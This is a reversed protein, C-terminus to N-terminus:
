LAGSVITDAVGEWVFRRAVRGFDQLALDCREVADLGEWWVMAAAFVPSPAVIALPPLAYIFANGYMRLDHRVAVGNLRYPSQPFPPLREFLRLLAMEGWTLDDWGKM